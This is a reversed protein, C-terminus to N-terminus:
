IQASAAFRVRGFSTQFGSGSMLRKVERRFSSQNDTAPAFPPFGRVPISLTEKQSGGVIM